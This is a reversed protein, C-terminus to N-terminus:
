PNWRWNTVSYNPTSPPAWSILALLPTAMYVSGRVDLNLFQATCRICREDKDFNFAEALADM